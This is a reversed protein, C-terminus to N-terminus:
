ADANAKGWREILQQIHAEDKEHYHHSCCQLNVRAALLYGLSGGLDDQALRECERAKVLNSCGAGMDPMCLGWLLPQSQDGRECM